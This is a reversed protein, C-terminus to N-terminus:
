GAPATREVYVYYAGCLETGADDYFWTQAQVDGKKLPISFRIFKDDASVPSSLQIDGVKLTAKAIPLAKGEPLEGDVAKFPPVGARIAVDAERPWRRLEFVYVGDRSVELNWPGNRPLAVRVDRQQDLIVDQWDAPSLLTTPEADSGVVLPSLENVRPEVDAWWTEYHGRMKAVVEPHEGAVNHDQALDTAVDYLDTGHILRWKNWLVTADFPEPRASNMRSFQVILMREPLSSAKGRLLDALNIGDFKSDAPPKLGCFDILTPLVDQVHTLADVDRPEGLKGAPWRVFMPVRHGGEWLTIKGGKMGANFYKVGVTGGNDSMFILITNERLGTRELWDELRGMNHDINAIMAFFSCLKPDLARYPERYEDPVWLPAHASNLALYTFFPEGSGAREQMWKMALDFQVDTCYGPFSELRGTETRYTTDFYDNNWRDPASPIHSSPFWVAKEFGRDQPRHPYVDGLHWKGFLGTRYGGAAFVDALTPIERRIMSRGSSVNMAGNDLADRGTLLQSRTPTCMPSVHFDTLRVSQGHLRDLNPTKLTPNGHCSLDGYGQDDTLVIIVNPKTAADTPRPTAMAVFACIFLLPYRLSEMQRYM